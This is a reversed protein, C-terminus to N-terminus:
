RRRGIGLARMCLHLGATGSSVAVGYPVGILDAMCQEFAELKPGLSLTASRLVAVVADIELDTIDPQSLPVIM